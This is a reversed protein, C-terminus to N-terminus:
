DKLIYLIEEKLNELDSLSVNKLNGYGDLKFVDRYYFDTDGIFFQLRELGGKELENKAIEEALDYDIFDEFLYEFCWDQTENMYDNCANYLKNYTDEYDSSIEIDEITKRLMKKNITNKSM